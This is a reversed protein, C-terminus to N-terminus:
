FARLFICVYLEGAAEVQRDRELQSDSHFANRVGPVDFGEYQGPMGDGPLAQHLLQAM